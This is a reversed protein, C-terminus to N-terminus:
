AKLKRYAEALAESGGVNGPFVIYALDPLRSGGELRWVPIGPLIQGLVTARNVELAKTAVDSSTIGGKAILFRLPIKIGRVVDVVARSVSSGIRLSSEGDGGTVLARSTHVVVDRGSKLLSTVQDVTAAVHKDRHDGLLTEVELVVAAPADDMALLHNLQETTKPVYSGVVILGAPQEPSVMEGTRLLPKEELGAYAQVFSAATRYVLNAGQLEAKRAALAFAQADSIAVANVIVVSNPALGALRTALEDLDGSRLDSISVSFLLEPDIAQGRKEQVWDRLDSHHFGFTADKAFPTEAAPVLQDGEAVYHTDGITLRGGQLFFPMIVHISDGRDLATAVADVEAPYHGRLTSDSRSIVTVERGTQESAAKLNRGILQALEVATAEPLARSNTLLYFMSDDRGLQEVLTEVDWTTLVPTQYVTQTGTPDDDLVVVCHGSSAILQRVQALLDEGRPPPLDCLPAIV